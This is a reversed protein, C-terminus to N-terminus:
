HGNILKNQTQKWKTIQMSQQEMAVCYISSVLFQSVLDYVVWVFRVCVYECVSACVRVHIWIQLLNIEMCDRSSLCSGLMEASKFVITNAMLQLSILTLIWTISFPQFWLRRLARGRLATARPSAINVSKMSWQIRQYRAPLHM